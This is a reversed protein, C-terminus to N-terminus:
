LSSRRRASISATAACLGEVLVDPWRERLPYARASRTRDRRPLPPEISSVPHKPNHGAGGPVNREDAVASAPNTFWVSTQVGSVGGPLSSQGQVGGARMDGVYRRNGASSFMFGDATTARPDHTGVDVTSYGGDVSVGPLGPISKGPSGASRGLRSCRRGDIRSSSAICSAGHYDGLNTSSNFAAAFDSSALMQMGDALSKLIIISFMTENTRSKKSSPLGTAAM